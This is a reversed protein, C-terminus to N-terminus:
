RRPEGPVGPCNQETREHEEKKANESNMKTVFAPLVVPAHQIPTQMEGVDYRYKNRRTVHIHKVAARYALTICPMKPLAGCSPCPVSMYRFRKEAAKRDRAYYSM